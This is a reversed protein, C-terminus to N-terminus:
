ADVNAPGEQLMPDPQQARVAAAAAAAAAQQERMAVQKGTEWTAWKFRTSPVTEGVEMTATAENGTEPYFKIGILMHFIQSPRMRM